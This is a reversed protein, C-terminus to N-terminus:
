ARDYTLFLAGAGVQQAGTLQWSRPGFSASTGFLPVGTGITIPAVKLILRDIVESLAGAIEGGGVLWIGGGESEKLDRVYSAPEDDVIEVTAAAPATLTRSFVLHRLHPYADDIGADLGVQYSGRGELVTDFESGAADIGMAARAAGPLTEPFHTVLHEVYEQTIPWFGDPGTPDSRDPGAVFGDLSTAVLYTLTRM